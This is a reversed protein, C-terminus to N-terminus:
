KNVEKWSKTQMYSDKKEKWKFISTWYKPQEIM